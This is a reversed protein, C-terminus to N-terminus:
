VILPYEIGQMHNSPSATKPHFHTCDRSILITKDRDRWNYADAGPSGAEGRCWWNWGQKRWSVTTPHPAPPSLPLPTFGCHHQGLLASVSSAAPLPSTPCGWGLGLGESGMSCLLPSGPQAWCLRALPFATSHNSLYCHGMPIVELTTSLYFCHHLCRVHFQAWCPKQHPTTQWQFKKTQSPLTPIM